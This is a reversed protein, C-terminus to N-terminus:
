PSDDGYGNVPGWSSREPSWVGVNGRGDILPDVFRVVEAIVEDFNTPLHSLGARQRLATWTSQRAAGHGDLLEGLPVLPHERHDATRQLNLYMDHGDVAHIRTLWAVDGFDRDRTNVQGRSMMTAIKEALSLEIPYGLMAIDRDDLLTPYSIKMVNFPDGFSLDLQVKIKATDLAALITVRVGQYETDERMAKTTIQSTDFTLGDGTATQAIDTVFQRVSNESNSLSRVSLDADRTPRRASFVAMLMGGKLALKDRHASMSLRRLFGEHAYLVLQEDTGRGRERAHLQLKRYAQQGTLDTM